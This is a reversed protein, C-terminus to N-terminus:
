YPTMICGGPAPARDHVQWGWSTAAAAAPEVLSRNSRTFLTVPAHNALSTGTLTGSNGSGDMDPEPSHLGWLPWYNVIAAPEVRRVGVRGALGAIEASQLQINFIAFEALTGSFKATGTIGAGMNVTNVTGTNVIVTGSTYTPTLLSGDVYCAVTNVAGNAPFTLVCHHWKGDNYGSGWSATAANFRSWIVGNEVSLQWAAGSGNTGWSFVFNTGGTRTDSTLFWISTSRTNKGTIGTASTAIKDTTGNFSRAM